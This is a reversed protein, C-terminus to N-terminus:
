ITRCCSEAGGESSADTRGHNSSTAIAVKGPLTIPVIAFSHSVCSSEKPTHLSGGVIAQPKGLKRTIRRFFEDTQSFSAAVSLPAEPSKGSKCSM